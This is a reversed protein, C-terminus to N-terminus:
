ANPCSLQIVTSNVSKGGILMSKVFFAIPLEADLAKKGAAMSQKTWNSSDNLTIWSRRGCTLTRTSKERALIRAFAGICAERRLQSLSMGKRDALWKEVNDKELPSYSTDTKSTHSELIDQILWFSQDGM